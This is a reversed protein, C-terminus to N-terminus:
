FHILVQYFIRQQYHCSWSDEQIFITAVNFCTYRSIGPRVSARGSHEKARSCSKSNNNQGSIRHPSGPRPRNLTFNHEKWKQIIAGFTSVPVNLLKFIWRYGISDRHKAVILIHLDQRLEKSRGMMLHNKHSVETVLFRKILCWHPNFWSINMQVSLPCSQIRCSSEQKEADGGRWTHEISQAQTM